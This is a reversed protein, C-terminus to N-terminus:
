FFGFYYEQLTDYTTTASTNDINVGVINNYYIKHKIIGSELVHINDDKLSLSTSLIPVTFILSTTNPTFFVHSKSPNHTVTYEISM